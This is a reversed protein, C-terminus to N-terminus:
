GKHITERSVILNLDIWCILVFDRKCGRPTGKRIADHGESEFIDTSSELSGHGVDKMIKSEDNDSVQIVENSSGFLSGLM